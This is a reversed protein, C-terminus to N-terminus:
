CEGRSEVGVLLKDFHGGDRALADLGLAGLCSLTLATRFKMLCLSQRKSRTHDMLAAAKDESFAGHSEGSDKSNSTLLDLCHCPGAQIINM